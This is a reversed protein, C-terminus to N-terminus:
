KDLILKSLPLLDPYRMNPTLHLSQFVITLPFCSYCYLIALLLGEFNEVTFTDLTLISHPVLIKKSEEDLKNWYELFRAVAKNM